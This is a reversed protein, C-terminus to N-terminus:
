APNMPPALHQLQSIGVNQDQRLVGNSKRFSFLEKCRHEAMVNAIGHGIILAMSVVLAAAM